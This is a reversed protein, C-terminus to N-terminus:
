KGEINKILQKFMVVGVILTLYLAVLAYATGEGIDFFVFSIRYIMWDLLETEMGGRTTGYLPDFLRMLWMVRLLVIIIILPKLMPLTIKFFVRIPSAGDIQTAEFQDKPRGKLGALLVFTAFPLWQWVTMFIITNIAYDASSLFPIADYGFWGVVTNIVGFQIHLIYNWMLSMSLPSVLLPIFCLGRVIGQGVFDRNLLLALGMGLVLEISICMVMIYITRGLSTWFVDDTLVTRYNELGIFEPEGKMVYDTFSMYLSYGTPYLMFAILFLLLPAILVWKLVNDNALWEAKHQSTQM